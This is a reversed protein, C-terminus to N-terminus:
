KENFWREMDCHSVAIYRIGQTDEFFDRRPRNLQECEMNKLLSNLKTLCATLSRIHTVRDPDKSCERCITENKQSLVTILNRFEGALNDDRIKEECFSTPIVLKKKQTATM